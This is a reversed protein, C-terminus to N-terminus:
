AFISFLIVGNVIPIKKMNQLGLNIKRKGFRAPVIRKEELTGSSNLAPSSWAFLPISLPELPFPKLCTFSTHLQPRIFPKQEIESKAAVRALLAALLSARVDLCHVCKCGCARYRRDVCTWSASLQM